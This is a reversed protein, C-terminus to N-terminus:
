HVYHHPDEPYPTDQWKERFEENVQATIQELLEMNIRYEETDEEGIVLWEENSNSRYVRVGVHKMRDFIEEDALSKQVENM